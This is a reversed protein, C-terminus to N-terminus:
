WKKKTKITEFLAIAKKDTLVEKDSLGFETQVWLRPNKINKDKSMIWSFLEGATKPETTERSDQRDALEAQTEKDSTNDKTAESKAEEIKELIVSPLAVRGMGWKVSSMAYEKCKQLENDTLLAQEILVKLVEIGGKQAVQAEISDERNSQVKAIAQKEFVGKIEEVAVVNYYKGKKEKTLKFSKNEITGAEIYGKLMDVEKDLHHWEGDERQISPFVRHTKDEHDILEVWKNDGKEAMIGSKVVIIKESM